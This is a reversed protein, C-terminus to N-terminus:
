PQRACRFGEAVDRTAPDGAVRFTSMLRNPGANWAGGQIVRTTGAVLNACNDCTAPLTANWDLTWEYMSGALDMQGFKGVGAPRSGVRLLDLFACAATGSALCNYDAYAETSDKSGSPVPADGWPYIRNDSGGKAAYQWELDTPLRGGDWACFAFAEYWSVCNMPLFDSNGADNWTQFGADCQVAATLAAKDAAIASNWATQWGSGAILPHAGANEAPPGAYANVYARFRGVTVEYKDLEFTAVKGVTSVGMTFGGGALSPAACCDDNTGVGCGSILAACSQPACTVGDGAYGTACKCEFSGPTDTCSTHAGCSAANKTCEDVNVCSVGDGTFGSNCACNFGGVTNTCAANADCDNGGGPQCEDIDSCKSPEGGCAYGPEVTCADSCGDGAKTHGDDCGGPMAELGVVLGDGCIPTCHTPEGQDCTWGPEIRCTKGCGDAADANGDDCREAADLMGDGCAPSGSGPEGSAAGQNMAGTGPEGAVAATGGQGASGTKGPTGAAGAEPASSSSGGGGGACSLAVVLLLSSWVV